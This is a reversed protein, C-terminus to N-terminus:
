SYMEWHNNPIDQVNNWSIKKRSKKGGSSGCTCKEWLNPHKPKTKPMKRIEDMVPCSFRVFGKNLLMKMKKYCIATIRADAISSHTGDHM